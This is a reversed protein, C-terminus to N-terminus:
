RSGGGFRGGLRLFPRERETPALGAAREFAVAAEAQRGLRSLLDACTAHFSHYSDLALADVLALAAALGDVEGVAIARNLAVVSTPSIAFLQECLTVIQPWDTAKFM